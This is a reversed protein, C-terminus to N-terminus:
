QQDQKRTPKCNTNLHEIFGVRKLIVLPRRHAPYPHKRSGCVSSSDECCSYFIHHVKMKLEDLM